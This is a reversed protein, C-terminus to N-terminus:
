ARGVRLRLRTAHPLEAVDLAELEVPEDLEDFLRTGGGLLRHAVYLEIQEVLGARLAQSAIEAGGMVVVDKDGAVAKARELAAEVGDTVFTFTGSSMPLDERAEHTVVFTPVPIPVDGWPELGLTFMRKGIVAAGYKAKAEVQLAGHVDGEARFMWEHLEEGGRGMPEDPGVDPGAIFGDVSMTIWLNVTM